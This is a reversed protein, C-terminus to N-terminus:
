QLTVVHFRRVSMRNRGLVITDSQVYFPHPNIFWSLTLSRKVKPTISTKEFILYYENKDHVAHHQSDFYKSLHKFNFSDESLIHIFNIM